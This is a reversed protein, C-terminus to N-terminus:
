IGGFLRRANDTTIVDVEAVSVGLSEAVVAATHMVFAPENRHGRHPMPALYPSDTELLLRDRPLDRLLARLAVSKKFSVIGPISLYLGCNLARQALAASGAFCHLVGRMPQPARRVMAFCDNTATTDDIADRLHISVPLNKEFALQLQAAFAEHQHARVAHDYFYDLGTEGIGVVKEQTALQTLAALISDDWVDADHPHLGVTAFIQPHEQALAVAAAASAMGDAAGITIMTTVGAAIARAITQERDLDFDKSTLHCHTDIM